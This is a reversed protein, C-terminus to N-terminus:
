RFIFEYLRHRIIKLKYYLKIVVMKVHNTNYELSIKRLEKYKELRNNFSIGGGEYLIYGSDSTDYKIHLNSSMIFDYDSAIAYRINYKHGLIRPFVLGQHNYPMTLWKLKRKYKVERKTLWHIKKVPLALIHNGLQDTFDHLDTATDGGNLFWLYDGSALKIGKNMADYPGNDLGSRVKYNTNGSTLELLYGKTGDQSDGDIIVHEVDFPLKKVSEVTRKLGLLDNYTVTIVTIDM